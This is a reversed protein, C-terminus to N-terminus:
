QTAYYQLIDIFPKLFLYNIFKNLNLVYNRTTRAM